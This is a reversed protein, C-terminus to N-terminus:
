VDYDCGIIPNAVSLCSQNNLLKKDLFKNFSDLDVNKLIEIYDFANNGSFYGNVIIAAISQINDFVSISRGYLSRKAIEFDEKNVGDKHLKDAYQRIINATKKPDKSEGAFLISAFGCGEFYEYGFSATNILNQNLLDNYLDSYRSAFIELLLDTCVCEELSVRRETLTEKFGLEFMSNSIPFDEEIYDTKIYAPENPFINEVYVPEKPILTKDAIDCVTKVDVNGVVCLVMNHPNYYANYCDYLDKPTIKAITEVTGAIDNRVPHNHYMSKLLNFMVKWNPDDDYMRIEQGIIGQEKQVSEETFFPAQVFELLIKLSQEFNDSTKFLYCTQDFSTYANASAGTNAFKSFADGDESEFLKHELYHAIGDPVNYVTGDAKFTVNISGYQTGFLAYSSSYNKKPYVYIPLGSKHKIYYYSENLSKNKIRIM